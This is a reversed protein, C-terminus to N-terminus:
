RIRTQLRKPDRSSHFIALVWIEEDRLEFVVQYPFRRMLTKRFPPKFVRFREPDSAVRALCEELSRLFESGLGTDCREYWEKAEEADCLACPSLVIQKM